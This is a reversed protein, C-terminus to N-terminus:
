NRYGGGVLERSQISKLCYSIEDDVKLTDKILEFVPIVLTRKTGDDGEM